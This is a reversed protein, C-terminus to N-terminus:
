LLVAANSTNATSALGGVSKTKVKRTAPTQVKCGAWSMQKSNSRTESSNGIFTAAMSDANKLM